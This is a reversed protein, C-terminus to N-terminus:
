WDAYFEFVTFKGPVLESAQDVKAGSSIKKVVDDAAFVHTSLILIAASFVLSRM